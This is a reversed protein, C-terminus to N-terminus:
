TCAVFTLDGAAFSGLPTVHIFQCCYECSYLSIGHQVVYQWIVFSLSTVKLGDRWAWPIGIHSRQDVIYAPLKERQMGCIVYAFKDITKMPYKALPIAGQIFIHMISFSKNADCLIKGSFSKHLQM